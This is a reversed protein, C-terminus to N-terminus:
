GAVETYHAGRAIVDRFLWTLRFEAAVIVFVARDSSHWASELWSTAISM